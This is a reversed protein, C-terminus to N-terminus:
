CMEIVKFKHYFITYQLLKSFFTERPISQQSSVFFIEAGQEKIRVRISSIASKSLKTYRNALTYM